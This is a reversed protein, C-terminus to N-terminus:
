AAAQPAHIGGNWWHEPSPPQEAPWTQTGAASGHWQLKGPPGAIIHVERQVVVEHPVKSAQSVALPRQLGFVHPASKAHVFPNM